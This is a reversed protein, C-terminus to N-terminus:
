VAAVVVAPAAVPVPPVFLKKMHKQLNFYGLEEGDEMKLLKKLVADPSIIKRNDPNQLKNTLIYSHLESTVKTRPLESNLPLNLFTCLEDNLKAPKAFGSPNRKAAGPARPTKGKQSAKVLKKHEKEYTKLKANLSKFADGLVAFDKLILEFTNTTTIVPTTITDDIAGATIEPAPADVIPTDTAVAAAASKTSKKPPM